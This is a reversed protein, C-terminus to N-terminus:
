HNATEIMNFSLTSKESRDTKSAIASESDADNKRIIHFIKTKDKPVLRSSSTLEDINKPAMSKLKEMFQISTEDQHRFNELVDKYALIEENYRQEDQAALDEYVKRQKDTLEKWESSINFFFGPKRPKKQKAM